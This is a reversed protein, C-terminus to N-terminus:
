VIPHGKSSAMLSCSTLPLPSYEVPPELGSFYSYRYALEDLPKICIYDLDLFVGGFELLVYFQVYDKRQVPQLNEYVDMDMTKIENLNDDTWLKFEWNPNVM